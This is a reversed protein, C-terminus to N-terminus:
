GQDAGRDATPSPAPSGAMQGTTSDLFAAVWFLPANWNIAVENFTFARADDRWCTQPACAGQLRRSVPDTMALSNPGGSLVGPPPDPAKPDFQRAWFRHHPWRMPRAGYGTVYSQDLANRGLVYDLADVVGERYRPEGSIDYATGLVVGRDLVAGNSGWPLGLRAPYPLGYGERRGDALYADAGALLATRQRRLDDIPLRNPLAALDIAAMGATDSWSIGDMGAGPARLFLPSARMVRLFDDEGTTIFLETAAWYVEDALTHDSYAGGGPVGGIAPIVPNRRAATFASRAARLCRASFAPDPGRWIRAAQAAVAALNLTAATSVPYVLRPERDSQPPTPLPTWRADTLKHHVLGSADIERMVRTSGSPTAGTPVRLRTGAPVQMALVFRLEWAAEDLLDNVRNGAEPILLRGDDFSSDPPRAGGHTREYANLLTWVTVGGNVVYKGQDGADYWGGTGDVRGPCGPWTVGNADRGSFCDALDPLHGAPRARSPDSVFRTEIPVGSRSEYFYHLADLKLRRFPQDAVVFARSNAAGAHLVYGRGPQQLSDFDVQQLRQGSSSDVGFPEGRGRAVVAGQADTVVWDLPASRSTVVVARKPGRTEFGLQDM